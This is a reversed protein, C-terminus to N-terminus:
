DKGLSRTIMRIGEAVPKTKAVRAMEPEVRAAGVGEEGLGFEGLKALEGRIASEGVIWEGRRGLERESRPAGAMLSPEPRRRERRSNLPQGPLEARRPVSKGAVNYGAM